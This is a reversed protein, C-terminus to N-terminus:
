RQPGGEAAVQVLGQLLHVALEGVHDTVDRAHGAHGDEFGHDRALARRLAEGLQTVRVTMVLRVVNDIGQLAMPAILRQKGSALGDLHVFDRVLLAGVAIQLAVPM